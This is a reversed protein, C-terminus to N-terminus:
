VRFGSAAFLLTLSTESEPDKLSPFPDKLFLLLTMVGRSKQKNAAPVKQPRQVEAAIRSTTHNLQGRM